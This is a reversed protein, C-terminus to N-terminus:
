KQCTVEIKNIRTQAGFTFAVSDLSGENVTITVVTDSVTVTVGTTTVSESLTKAYSASLCTIVIKTMKSGTITAESKAYCRYHDSDSTRIATSSGAQTNQFTFLEGAWTITTGSLAGKNAAISMAEKEVEVIEGAYNPDKGDCISCLGDVYNHTDALVDDKATLCVICLAPTACTAETYTSCTHTGVEEYTAGASIQRSGSYTAMTGTVKIIKGLEVNGVLRYLYLQVGDEGAIYVSINNYSSNYETGIKVVTGQVVVTAGDEKALAETVTLAETPTPEPDPEPEPEPTPQESPVSGEGYYVTIKTIQAQGNTVEPNTNAVTLTITTGNVVVVAGTDVMTEGNMLVGTKNSIYEIVVSGMVETSTITISGGEAQYIRWNQGNTYYKGTNRGYSGVATGDCTVTTKEDIVVSEYLTGNSWGNATAYTEIVVSSGEVPDPTPDPEPNPEANEVIAYCGAALQKAGNYSGVKGYVTVVDGVVVKTALRYLYLDASGDTITVSINGYQDSWETNIEKVTGQVIVYQGDEKAAADALTASTYHGLIEATGNVFQKAGNYSGVKGQIKIYDDVQVNTALRYIYLDDKGDTITVSINGYSDSWETNIEKVRGEIIAGTGDAAAIAEALKMNKYEVEVAPGNMTVNTAIVNLYKGSGTVYVFWGEITVNQGDFSSCDINPYALSGVVEETGDLYINVYTGSVSLKGNFKIYQMVPASTSSKALEVVQATTLETPTPNTYEVHNAVYYNTGETFQPAGSYSGVNGSVVVVDGVTVDKAFSSGLYVNIMGTEDEMIYGRANIAIVTGKVTVLDSPGAVLAQAITHSAGTAVPVKFTFSKTAIDDGNAITATLNVTQEVETNNKYDVSILYFNGNEDPTKNSDVRSSSVTAVANDSVWSVTYTVGNVKVIAAVLFDTSVEQKDQQVVVKKAAEQAGSTTQGGNNDCATLAFLSLVFAVVFLCVKKLNKM